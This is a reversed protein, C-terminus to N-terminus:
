QRFCWFRRAPSYFQVCKSQGTNAELMDVVCPLRAPKMFKSGDDRRDHRLALDRQSSRLRALPFLDEPLTLSAPIALEVEDAPGPVAVPAPVRQQLEVEKTVAAISNGVKDVAAKLADATVGLRRTWVRLQAPDTLDIKNRVPPHKVRQM